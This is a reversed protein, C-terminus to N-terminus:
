SLNRTQCQRTRHKWFLSIIIIIVYMIEAEATGVRSDSDRPLTSQHPFIITQRVFVRWKEAEMGFLGVAHIINM